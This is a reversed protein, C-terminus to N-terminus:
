KKTTTTKADKKTADKKTDCCAKDKKDTCAKKETCAKKDKSQTCETKTKEQTTKKDQAMVGASASLAFVIAASLILKKMTKKNLITIFLKDTCIYMM